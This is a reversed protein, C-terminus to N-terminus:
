QENEKEDNKNSETFLKNLLKDNKVQEDYSVEGDIIEQIRLKMKERDYRSNASIKKREEIMKNKEQKIAYDKLNNSEIKDLIDQRKKERKKENKKLNERVRKLNEAKKNNREEREKDAEIMAKKFHNEKKENDALYKNIKEQFNNMNNMLAKERKYKEIELKEEMDDLKKKMRLSNPIKEEKKNETKEKKRDVREKIKLNMEKSDKLEFLDTIKQQYKLNKNEYEKIQEKLEKIKNKNKKQAAKDTSLDMNNKEEKQKKLLYLKQDFDASMKEYIKKREIIVQQDQYRENDIIKKGKNKIKLFNEINKDKQEIKDKVKKIKKANDLQVKLYRMFHDDKTEAKKDLKKKEDKLCPFESLEQKTIETKKMGKSDNMVYSNSTVLIKKKHPSKKRKTSDNSHNIRRLYNYSESNRLSIQNLKLKYDLDIKIEEDDEDENEGYNNYKKVSPKIKKSNAIIEKRKSICRDLNNQRQQEYLDYRQKQIDKSFKKFEPNEKIFEEFTM